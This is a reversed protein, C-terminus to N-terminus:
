GSGGIFSFVMFYALNTAFSNMVLSVAISMLALFISPKRGALDGFIGFFFNGFVLGLLTVMDVFGKASNSLHLDERLVPFAFSFSFLELTTCAMAVGGVLMLLVQFLGCGAGDLLRELRRAEADDAEKERFAEGDRTM